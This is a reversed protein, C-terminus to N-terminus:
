SSPLTVLWVGSTKTRSNVWELLIQRSDTSWDIHEVTGGRDEPIIPLLNVAEEGKGPIRLVYLRGNRGTFAIKRGDPSWCIVDGGGVDTLKTWERGDLDALWVGNKGSDGNNSVAINVALRKGDPSWAPVMSAGAVSPTVPQPDSGNKDAVYVRNQIGNEDKLSRFFAIRSGDPSWVPSSEVAPSKTLVRLNGDRDIAMLDVNGFRETLFALEGTSAWVPHYAWLAGKEPAADEGSTALSLNTFQGQLNSCWIEWYGNRDTVFALMKRDPSWTGGGHEISIGYENAGVIRRKSGDTNTEWVVFAKKGPADRDSLYYVKNKGAWVPRVNNYSDSVALPTLFVTQAPSILSNDESGGPLSKERGDGEKGGPDGGLALFSGVFEPIKGGSFDNNLKGGNRDFGDERVTDGNKILDRRELMEAADPSRYGEAGSRSSFIGTSSFLGREGTLDEVRYGSVSLGGALFLAAISAAIVGHRLTGGSLFRTLFGPKKESRGPDGAAENLIAGPPVSEGHGAAPDFGPIQELVREVFDEPPEIHVLSRKLLKDTDRASDLYESCKQCSSLHKYLEKEQRSDLEGDLYAFIKQKIDPCRV